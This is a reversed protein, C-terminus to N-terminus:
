FNLLVLIQGSYVSPEKFTARRWGNRDPINIDVFSCPPIDTLRHAPRHSWSKHAALKYLEHIYSLMLKKNSRTRTEIAGFRKFLATITVPMCAGLPGRIDIMEGVRLSEAERFSMHEPFAM